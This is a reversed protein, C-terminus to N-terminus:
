LDVEPEPLGLFKLIDNSSANKAADMDFVSDSDSATEYSGESSYKTGNSSNSDSHDVWQNVAHSMKYLDSTETFTFDDEEEQAQDMDRARELSTRDDISLSLASSTSRLPPGTPITPSRGMELFPGVNEQILEPSSTVHSNTDVVAVLLKYWGASTSCLLLPYYYDHVRRLYAWALIVLFILAHVTIKVILGRHVTAMDSKVQLIWSSGYRDKNTHLTSSARTLIIIQTVAVGVYIVVVFVLSATLARWATLSYANGAFLPVFSLASSGGMAVALGWTLKRDLANFSAYEKDGRLLVSVLPSHIYFLSLSIGANITTYLLTLFADQGVRAGSNTLKLIAFVQFWFLFMTAHVALGFLTCDDQWRVPAARKKKALAVKARFQKIRLRIKPIAMIHIGNVVLLTAAWLGVIASSNIHCDVGEYNIWDSLGTWGEKCVCTSNVCEGLGSCVGFPMPRLFDPASSEGCHEAMNQLDVPTYLHTRREATRQVRPKQGRARPAVGCV